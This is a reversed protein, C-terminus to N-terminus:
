LQAGIFGGGAFLKQCEKPALVHGDALRADADHGV